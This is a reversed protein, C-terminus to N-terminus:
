LLNESLLEGLGGEVCVCGDGGVGGGDGGVCGVMFDVGSGVCCTGDSNDGEDYTNLPSPPPLGTHDGPQLAPPLTAM